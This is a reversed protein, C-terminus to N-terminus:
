KVFDCASQWNQDIAEDKMMSFRMRPKKSRGLSSKKWSLM